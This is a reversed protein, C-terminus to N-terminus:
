KGETIKLSIKQKLTAGRRISGKCYLSISGKLKAPREIGCKQYLLAIASGIGTYVSNSCRVEVEVEGEAADGNGDKQEQVNERGMVADEGNNAGGEEEGIVAGKGRGKRRKSRVGTVQEALNKDVKVVKSKINM